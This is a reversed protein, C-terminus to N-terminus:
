EINSVRDRIGWSKFSVSCISVGLDLAKLFIFRVAAPPIVVFYFGYIDVELEEVLKEYEESRSLM